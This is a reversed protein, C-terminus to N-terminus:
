DTDLNPNIMGDPRAQVTGCVGIVFEGRLVHAKKHVAPSVEPNFVVQTLGWKDRLDVFIVGGHDRRRQIWGMLIVETGLDAARLEGCNHTRRMSELKDLLPNVGKRDCRTFGDLVSLCGKHVVWISNSSM